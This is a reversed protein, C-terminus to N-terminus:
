TTIRSDTINIGMEHLRRAARAVCAPIVHKFMLSESFAHVAMDVAKDWNHSQVCESLYIWAYVRFEVGYAPTHDLYHECFYKLKHWNEVERYYTLAWWSYHADAPHQVHARECIETYFAHKEMKQSVHKTINWDVHACTYETHVPVLYEHVSKVWTYCNPKHLRIKYECYQPDTSGLYNVTAAHADLQALQHKLDKLPEFHDNFDLVMLWDMHDPVLSMCMNRAQSFDFPDFTHAHVHVGRQKLLAVTQDTSGTDLVTVHDFHAVQDCFRAVNAQENKSIAYAALKM